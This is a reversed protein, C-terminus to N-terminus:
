LDYPPPFFPNYSCPTKSWHCGPYTGWPGQEHDRCGASALQTSGPVLQCKQVMVQDADCVNSGIQSLTCQVPYGIAPCWDYAKPLKRSVKFPCIGGEKPPVIGVDAKPVDFCKGFGQGPPCQCTCSGAFDDAAGASRIDTHEQAMTELSARTIDGGARNSTGLEPAPSATFSGGAQKQTWAAKEDTTLGKDFVPALAKWILSLTYGDNYGKDCDLSQGISQGFTSVTINRETDVYIYKAFQGMGFGLSESQGPIKDAEPFSDGLNQTVVYESPDSAKECKAQPTSSCPREPLVPLTSDCPISHGTYNKAAVCCTAFPAGPADSGHGNAWRPACCHARDKGDATKKTMDTNLWNLFGYGDVVGPFVPQFMQELYKPDAAQYPANNEDLWKGRNLILQGVKAIERCSMMQGGGASVDIGTEDYDYFDPIGMPVAFAKKAWEYAGAMGQKKAIATLTYSIHQIFNDSDYTMKSGPAVTGYGSSQGLLHRMTVVDFYDTGSANWVALTPSVGYKKIPTDIDVLGQQVAMGVLVATATKGLSDTEYLSSSTNSFYSEHVIVGDKTVTLCYRENATVRIQEAAAALLKSSLGHAEPDEVTWNGRGPGLPDGAVAAVLALASVCFSTTM